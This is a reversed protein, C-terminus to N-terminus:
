WWPWGPALHGLVDNGSRWAIVLMAVLLIATAVGLLSLGVVQWPRPDHLHRHIPIVKAVGAYRGLDYQHSM